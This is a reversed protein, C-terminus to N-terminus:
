NGSAKFLNEPSDTLYGWRQHSLIINKYSTHKLSFDALWRPYMFCKFCQLWHSLWWQLRRLIKKVLFIIGLSWLNWIQLVLPWLGNTAEQIQVVFFVPRKLRTPNGWKPERKTSSRVSWRTGHWPPSVLLFGELWTCPGELKCIDTALHRQLVLAQTAKLQQDGKRNYWFCSLTTSFDGTPKCLFGNEFLFEAHNNSSLILLPWDIIFTERFPKLMICSASRQGAKQNLALYM